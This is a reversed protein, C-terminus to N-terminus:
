HKSQRSGSYVPVLRHPLSDVATSNSEHQESREKVSSQTQWNNTHLLSVILYPKCQDVARM